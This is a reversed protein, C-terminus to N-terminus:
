IRNLTYLIELQHLVEIITRYTKSHYLLNFNWKNM